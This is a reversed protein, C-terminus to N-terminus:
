KHGTPHDKLVPDVTNFESLKQVPYVSSAVYIYWLSYMYLM